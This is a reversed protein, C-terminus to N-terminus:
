NYIWISNLYRTSNHFDLTCSETEMSYFLCRDTFDSRNMNRHTPFYIKNEMGRLTASLSQRLSVFLTQRKLDKTTVWQMKHRDLQFVHISRKHHDTFVSLLEGKSEVMYNQAKTAKAKLGKLKDLVAWTDKSPYFVGLKGDQSLCYFLGDYYVPHNHGVLFPLHNNYKRKTWKKDGSSYIYIHVYSDRFNHICFVIFDPSMPRSAFSFGCPKYHTFVDDDDRWYPLDVKEETFPNFLFFSFDDHPPRALLLWGDKSFHFKTDKLHPIAYSYIKNHSPDFLKCLGDQKHNFLLLPRGSLRVLPDILRWSQSVESFHIRDRSLSLHSGILVIIGDPLESWNREKVDMKEVKNRTPTTSSTGQKNERINANGEM